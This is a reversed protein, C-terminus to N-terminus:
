KEGEQALLLGVLGTQFNLRRDDESGQEGAAKLDGRLNVRLSLM